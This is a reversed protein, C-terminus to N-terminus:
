RGLVKWALHEGWTRLPMTIDFVRLSGTRLWWWLGPRWWFRLDSYKLRGTKVGERWLQLVAHQDLVQADKRKRNKVWLVLDYGLAQAAAERPLGLRELRAIEVFFRRADEGTIPSAIASEDRSRYNYGRERVVALRPKKLSLEALFVVDEKFRMGERFRVDGIIGRRVLNLFPWGHRLFVCATGGGPSAIDPFCFHADAHVIDVDERAARMMREFWDAAVTDDADLFGIWTGAAVALARNRAASVGGNPQHFVKIRSDRAAYSELIDGSGDASGDDVCLCEWDTFTQALVSELCAALYPAVNYVPVIISLAPRPM